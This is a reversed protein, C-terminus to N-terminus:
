SDLRPLTLTVRTGGDPGSEVELTGGVVAMLAGHLALGQGAGGSANRAASLGAGDDEIVVQLAARGSAAVRLRLPRPHQKSRGYRAANRVAERAAHFLVEATLPPLAAAAQEVEPAVDWTVGDFNQGWEANVVKRLASFLGARAADPAAAGPMERLLDAIRHHAGALLDVAEPAAAPANLALLAAHLQPLVDDHLIRRARQDLVQTEALRQRQLALLQRALAAAAATDILREGSARAIEM